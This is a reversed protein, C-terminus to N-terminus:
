KGMCEEFIIRKDEEVRKKARLGETEEDRLREERRGAGKAEETRM